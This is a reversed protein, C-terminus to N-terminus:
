YSIDTDPINMDAEYTDFQSFCWDVKVAAKSFKEVRREAM